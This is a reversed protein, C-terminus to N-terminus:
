AGAFYKEVQKMRSIVIRRQLKMVTSKLETIEQLHKKYEPSDAQMKSLEVYLSAIRHFAKSREATLKDSQAM